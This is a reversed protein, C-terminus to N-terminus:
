KEVRKFEIVWVWPNDDWGFGRKANIDDWLRRWQTLVSWEGALEIAKDSYHAGYISCFKQYEAIDLACGEAGAEEATIEQVRGVRVNVVELTIRSAWRPMHISPRWKFQEQPYYHKDSKYVIRHRWYRLLIEDDIISGEPGKMTTDDDISTPFPEHYAFSERVWLHDGPKGYPCKLGFEGWEDYVGFIAPGPQLEGDKDEVAPEYMEPGHLRSIEEFPQIKLVRRTQTKRGDLIARIMKTSFLIPHENM